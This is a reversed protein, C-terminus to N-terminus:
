QIRVYECSETERIYIFTDQYLFKFYVVTEREYCADIDELDMSWHGVYTRILSEASLFVLCSGDDLTFGLDDIDDGLTKSVYIQKHLPWGFCGPITCRAGECVHKPQGVYMVRYLVGPVLYRHTSLSM